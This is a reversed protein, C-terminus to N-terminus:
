AAAFVPTGGDNMPTSMDCGAEKLFRVCDSHGEGAAACVPTYGNLAAKSLNAGNDCLARLCGLHGNEAALVTATVGEVPSAEDVQAGDRGALLRVADEDGSYAAAGILHMGGSLWKVGPDRMIDAYQGELEQRTRPQASAPM